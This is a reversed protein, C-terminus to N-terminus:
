TSRKSGDMIFIGSLAFGARVALSEIATRLEGEELPTFTNFLPLIFVPALYTICLTAAVTVLWCWVWAWPGAAAFFWLVAALLPGGILVSLGWGKLKDMIFTGPTTTNFGFRNELIFTHYISFPLALLDGALGLVAFFLLGTVIPGHGASRVLGDLVDFGGALIIVLIVLTSCLEEVTDFRMGARAYEQSKAYQEQNLMDRFPAPLRASLHRAGLLNALANLGYGTLLSCVIVLLYINM